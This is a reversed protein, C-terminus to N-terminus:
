PQWTPDFDQSSGQTIPRPETGTANMVYIDKDTPGNWAQYVLWNGDPSYEGESMTSNHPGLLIPVMPINTFQLYALWPAGAVGATNQTLVISQGDPSWDPESNQISADEVKSALDPPTKGDIKIIYVHTFARTFAIEKGDPSWAPQSNPLDDPDPLRSVANTEKSLNLIYIQRMQDSSRLSTFAIYNGDPSWDPDYGRPVQTLWEPNTGDANMVWLSAYPYYDSDDACPRIFVLRKGDPSWDPQCAGDQLDTLKVLGTGDLNIVWINPKPSKGAL